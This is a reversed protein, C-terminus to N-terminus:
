KVGRLAANLMTDRVSGLIAAQMQEVPPLADPDPQHWASKVLWYWVGAAQTIKDIAPKRLEGKKTRKGIKAMERVDAILAPRMKGITTDYRFAFRLPPTGGERPSGAAYAAATAPIALNKVRKPVIKGGFIKLRIAPDAISVSAQTSSVEGVATANRIRSWFNQSPWGQKNGEGNRLLFWDRLENSLAKGAVQMMAWPRKSLRLLSAMQDAAGGKGLDPTEITLM